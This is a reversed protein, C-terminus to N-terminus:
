SSRRELTVGVGWPERAKMTATEYIDAKPWGEPRRVRYRRVICAVVARAEALALREGLCRRPGYGFPIYAYISTSGGNTHTGAPKTPSTPSTTPSSATTPLWREPVWEEGREPWHLPHKHTAAISYALFQGKRITTSREFKTPGDEETWTFTKEKTPFRPLSPASPRLRLTEKIIANLLKLSELKELTMGSSIETTSTPTSSSSPTDPGCATVLEDYLQDQIEPREILFHMVWALLNTTTDHGAFLLTVLHKVFLVHNEGEWMWDPIGEKGEKGAEKNWREKLLIGLISQDNPDPEYENASVKRDFEELRDTVLSWFHKLDKKFQASDKLLFSPLLTRFIFRKIMDENVADFAHLYTCGDGELAGVARGFVVRTITDFTFHLFIRQIDFGKEGLAGNKEDLVNLLIGIEDRIIPVATTRISAMTFFRDFLTRAERWQPGNPQFILGGAIGDFFRVAPDTGRTYTEWDSQLIERILKPHAVT